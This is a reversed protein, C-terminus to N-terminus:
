HIFNNLQTIFLLHISSENLPPVFVKVLYVNYRYIHIYKHTYTYLSTYAFAKKERDKVKCQVNLKLLIPLDTDLGM